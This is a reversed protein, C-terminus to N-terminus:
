FSQLGNTLWENDRCKEWEFPKRNTDIKGKLTVYNDKRCEYLWWNEYLVLGLKKFFIGTMIQQFVELFVCYFSTQKM